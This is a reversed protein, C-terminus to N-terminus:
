EDESDPQLGHTSIGPEGPPIKEAASVLEADARCIACMGEGGCRARLGDPREWARGHGSNTGVRGIDISSM